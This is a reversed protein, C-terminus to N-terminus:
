RLDDPENRGDTVEPKGQAKREIEEKAQRHTHLVGALAPMLMIPVLFIVGPAGFAAVAIICAVWAVATLSSFVEPSLWAARSAPTAAVAPTPEVSKVLPVPLSGNLGDPVPAPLDTFLPRLDDM